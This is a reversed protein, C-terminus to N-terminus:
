IFKMDKLTYFEVLEKEEDNIILKCKGKNKEIFHKNFLRIESNITKKKYIIYKKKEKSEEIKIINNNIISIIEECDNQLINNNDLNVVMMNYSINKKLEEVNKIRNNKLNIEELHRNKKIVEGIPNINEIQNFSLDIRRFNISPLKKLPEINKIKNHSFDLKKLNPFNWDNIEDLSSINNNSLDMEEVNKFEVSCLLSLDFDGVNKGNLNIKLENGKLNVKLKANLVELIKSELIKIKQQMKKFEKLYEREKYEYDYIFDNSGYICFDDNKYIKYTINDIINMINVLNDYNSPDKEYKKIIQNFVGVRYNNMKNDYLLSNKKKIILNVEEDYIRKKDSSPIDNKKNNENINAIKLKYKVDKSSIFLSDNNIPSFKNNNNM